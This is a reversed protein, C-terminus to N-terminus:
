KKNGKFYIKEEGRDLRLIEPYKSTAKMVRGNLANVWAGAKNKWDDMDEQRPENGTLYEILERLDLGDQLNQKDSFLLHLIDNSYVQKKVTSKSFQVSINKGIKLEASQSDHRINEFLLEPSDGQKTELWKEAIAIDQVTKAKMLSDLEDRRVLVFEDSSAYHTEIENELALENTKRDISYAKITSTTTIDGTEVSTHELQSLVITQMKLHSLDGFKKLAERIPANHAELIKAAYNASNLSNAIQVSFNKSIMTSASISAFMKSYNPLAAALQENFRKSIIEAANLQNQMASSAITLQAKTLADFVSSPVNITVKDSDGSSTNKSQSAM